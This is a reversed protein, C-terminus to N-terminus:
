HPETPDYIFQGNSNSNSDTSNGNGYVQVQGNQPISSEFQHRISNDKIVREECGALVLPLLTASMLVIFSSAMRQRM